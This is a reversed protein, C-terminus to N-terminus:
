NCRLSYANSIRNESVDGEVIHSDFISIANRIAAAFKSGDMSGSTDLVLVIRKSSAGEYRRDITGTDYARLYTCVRRAQLDIDFPIQLVPFDACSEIIPISKKLWDHASETSTPMEILLWFKGIMTFSGETVPDYVYRLVLLSFFFHNMESLWSTNSGGVPLYLFSIHLARNQRSESFKLKLAQVLTSISSMENITLTASQCHDSTEHEKMRKRIFYTKGSCCNQSTVVIVSAQKKIQTNWRMSSSLLSQPTWTKGDIWPSTHILSDGRQICHMRIGMSEVQRDSLFLLLAELNKNNLQDVNVISFKLNPFAKVRDLFLSLQDESCSVSGDLVEFM